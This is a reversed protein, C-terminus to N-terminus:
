RIQNIENRCCFSPQYWEFGKEEDEEDDLHRWLLASRYELLSLFYDVIFVSRLLSQVSLTREELFLNKSIGGGRGGFHVNALTPPALPYRHCLPINTTGLSIPPILPCRHYWPYISTTDLVWHTIGQHGLDIWADLYLLSRMTWSTKRHVQFKKRNQM